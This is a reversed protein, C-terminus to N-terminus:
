GHTLESFFGTFTSNCQLENELWVNVWISMSLLDEVDVVLPLSSLIKYSYPAYYTVISISEGCVLLQLMWLLFVIEETM